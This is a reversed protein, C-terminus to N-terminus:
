ITRPMGPGPRNASPPTSSPPAVPTPPSLLKEIHAKVFAHCKHAQSLEAAGYKVHKYRANWGFNDLDRYYYDIPKLRLDAKIKANREKHNECNKGTTHANFAEVYHMASYFLAVLAWGTQTDCNSDLKDAFSANNRAKYIHEALAPM